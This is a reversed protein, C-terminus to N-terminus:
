KENVANETIFLVAIKRGLKMYADCREEKLARRAWWIELTSKEFRRKATGNLVSFAAVSNSQLAGAFYAPCADLAGAATCCVPEDHLPLCPGRQLLM